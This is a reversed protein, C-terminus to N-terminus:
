KLIKIHHNKKFNLEDFLVIRLPSFSYLVHQNKGALFNSYFDKGVQYKNIYRKMVKSVVVGDHVIDAVGEAQIGIVPQDLKVAITIAMKPNAQIEQSHRRTPLSLWYLNLNDDEIYYVSALWPQGGVQTALQMVQSSHIYERVLTEAKRNM